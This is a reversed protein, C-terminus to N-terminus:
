EWIHFYFWQYIALQEYLIELLGTSFTFKLSHTLFSKSSIFPAQHTRKIEKKKKKKQPLPYCKMLMLENIKM